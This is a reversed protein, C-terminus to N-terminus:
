SDAQTIPQKGNDDEKHTAKVSKQSIEVLEALSLLETEATEPSIDEGFTELHRKQFEAILGASLRM